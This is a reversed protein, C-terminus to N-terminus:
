SERGFVGRAEAARWIKELDDSPSPRDPAQDVPEAVAVPRLPHGDLKIAQGTAVLLEAEALAMRFARFQMRSWRYAVKRGRKDSQFFIEVTKSM